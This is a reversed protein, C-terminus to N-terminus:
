QQSVIDRDAPYKIKYGLRIDKSENSAIDVAWSMVGRKDAVQKETPASTLSLQEVTIGTNESIPVRDFLQVSIPFNHLNKITTKYERTETKVQNYWVPDNEKKKVPARTVKVKDDAGFGLTFIDGTETFALKGKGIYTDDRILSVEGPLLPADLDNISEASLYATPDLAPTTTLRIKPTLTKSSILVAKQASDSPVNIRAALHYTAAYTGLSSQAATEEGAKPASMPLAAPAAGADEMQLTQGAVKSRALPAPAAVTKADYFVPESFNLRETTLEPAATSRNTRITSLTLDVDSWDEGTKQRVAARRVLDLTLKSTDLKADYLPTWSAGTVSYSMTLVARTASDSHLAITVDRSQGPPSALRAPDLGIIEMDLEQAKVSAIRLEEAVTAAGAGVENWAASWKEVALEGTQRDPGSQAFKSIMAKKLLLADIQGQLKAREVRLAELKGSATVDSKQAMALRSEVAGLQLNGQAVGTIRLSNADLSLPLGHLVVSTEGIPLDIEVLRTVKAGDPFVTVTDIKSVAALEAGLAPVAAILSLISTAALTSRM